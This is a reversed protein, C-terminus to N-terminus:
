KSMQWNSIANVIEISYDEGKRSPHFADLFITSNIQQSPRGFTCINKKEIFPLDKKFLYLCNGTIVIEPKIFNIQERLVHGNIKYIDEFHSWRNSSTHGAPYKNINISAISKMTESFTSFDASTNDFLIKSSIKSITKLTPIKFYTDMKELIDARGDWGGCHAQYNDKNYFNIQSPSHTGEKNVYDDYPEWLIWLIKYKSKTYYDNNIIGDLIPSLGNQIKYNEIILKDLDTSTM